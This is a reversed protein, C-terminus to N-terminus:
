VRKDGPGCVGNIYAVIKKVADPNNYLSHRLNFLGGEPRACWDVRYSKAGEPTEYVDVITNLSHFLLERGFVSKCLATLLILAFCVYLGFSFYYSIKDSWWDMVGVFAALIVEGQIVCQGNNVRGGLQAVCAEYSQYQSIAYYIVFGLLSLILLVAGVSVIISISAVVRAMRSTIKGFFLALTAEDRHSRLITIDSVTEKNETTEFKNGYLFHGIASFLILFILIAPLWAFWAMAVLDSPFQLSGVCLIITGALLNQNNIHSAVNPIKSFIGNFIPKKRIRQYVAGFLTAAGVVISSLAIIIGVYFIYDANNANAGMTYISLLAIISLSIFIPFLRDAIRTKRQKISLFPTAMTIIHVCHANGSMAQRADLAVNGGHSHAIIFHSAEQSGAVSEDIVKALRDTARLREEISNAGSWLFASFNTAPAVGALGSDLAVRFKSESEFWLHNAPNSEAKAQANKEPDFGRGWTGHVLIIKAPTGNVSM